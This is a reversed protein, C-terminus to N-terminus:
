FSNNIYIKFHRLCMFKLFVQIKRQKKFCFLLCILLVFEKLSRLTVNEKVCRIKKDKFYLCM